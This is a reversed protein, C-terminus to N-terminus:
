VAECCTQETATPRTNRQAFAQLTQGPLLAALEASMEGRLVRVHAPAEIGIKISGRGTQVIKVIIDDGIQVMEAEKRTIVLM